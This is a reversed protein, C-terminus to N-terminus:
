TRWYAFPVRNSKQASLLLEPVRQKRRYVQELLRVMADYDDEYWAPPIEESLEALVRESIQRELRELWPAFSDM